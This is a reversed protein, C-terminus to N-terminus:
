DGFIFVPLLSLDFVYKQGSEIEDTFMLIMDRAFTHSRQADFLLDTKIQQDM